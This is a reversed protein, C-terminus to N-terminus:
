DLSGVGVGSAQKEVKIWHWTPRLLLPMTPGGQEVVMKGRESHWDVTVCGVGTAVQKIGRTEQVVKAAWSATGAAAPEVAAGTARPLRCNEVWHMVVNKDASHGM